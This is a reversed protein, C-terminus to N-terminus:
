DIIEELEWPNFNGHTSNSCMASFKVESGDEKKGIITIPYRIREDIATITYIADLPVAYDRAAHVSTIKVKMGVKAKDIHM